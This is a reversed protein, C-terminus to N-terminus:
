HSRAWEVLEDLGEKISQNTVEVFAEINMRGADILAIASECVDKKSGRSMIQDAAADGTGNVSSYYGSEVRAREIPDEIEEFRAEMYKTSAEYYKANAEQWKERYEAATELRDLAGLCDRGIRGVVFNQTAVFAAAGDRTQSAVGDTTGAAAVTQSITILFLLSLKKRSM